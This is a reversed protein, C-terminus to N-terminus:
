QAHDDSSGGRPEVASPTVPDAGDDDPHTSEGDPEHGQWEVDELLARVDDALQRGRQQLEDARVRAEEGLAGSRGLEVLERTRARVQNLLEEAQARGRDARERAAARAQALREGSERDETLEHMRARAAEVAEAMSTRYRELNERAVQSPTAPEAYTPWWAAAPTGQPHSAALEESRALMTAAMRGTLQGADEGPDEPLVELVFRVLAGRHPMGAVPSAARQAGFHTVVLVPAEADLALRAAGHRLPLLSGDHTITGEPAVYVTGGERVRSVAAAFAASRGSDTGRAVPIAGAARAVRGFVPVEFIEQKALPQIWHGTVRRVVDAVLFPDVNSTHNAVVVLPRDAAPVDGEVRVRLRWAFVRRLIWTVLGIVARWPLPPAGGPAHRTGGARVTGQAVAVEEEWWRSASM